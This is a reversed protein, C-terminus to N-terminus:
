SESASLMRSQATMLTGDEVDALGTAAVGIESDLFKV